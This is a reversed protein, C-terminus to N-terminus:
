LTIEATTDITIPANTGDYKTTIQISVEARSTGQATHETVVAVGNATIAIHEEVDNAVFGIGTPSYKKLFLVSNAHDLTKGVPPVGSAGFVSASIGRLTIVPSIMAQHILTDFALAGCFVTEATSRWEIDLQNICSATIVADEIGFEGPGVTYLTNDLTPTALATTDSIVFPHAAGDASYVLAEMDLTAVQRAQATLRRPLLLGRNATYSRHVSGSAPLGNTGLLAFLAVLTNSGDIVVGTSGTLGLAAAVARTGFAVRPRQGTILAFQPYPSGPGVDSVVEPNNTANIGLVPIHTSGRSVCHAVHLTM